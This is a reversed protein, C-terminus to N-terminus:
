MVSCQIYDHQEYDKADTQTESETQTQTQTQPQDMKKEPEEESKQERVAKRKEALKERGKRLNELQAQTLQRKPKVLIGEDVPEVEITKIDVTASSM